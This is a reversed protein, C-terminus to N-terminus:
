PVVVSSEFELGADWSKHCRKCQDTMAYIFLLVKQCGQSGAEVTSCVCAVVLERDCKLRSSLLLLLRRSCPINSSLNTLRSIWRLYGDTSAM